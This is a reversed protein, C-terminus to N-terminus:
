RRRTDRERQAPRQNDQRNRDAELYNSHQRGEKQIRITLSRDRVPPGRRNGEYVYINGPRDRGYVRGEHVWYVQVTPEAYVVPEPRLSHLNVDCGSAMGAALIAAALSTKLFTKM